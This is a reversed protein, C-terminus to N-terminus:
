IKVCGHFRGPIFEYHTLNTMVYESTLYGNITLGKVSTFFDRKQADDSLELAELLNKKQKNNCSVFSKGFSEQATRDLASLGKSLSEQAPKEYCDAIMRAVFKHVGIEKAGPTDTTPIITEVVEALVTEQDASLLATPKLSTNNWGSAWAPLTIASGFAVAMNKLVARREM